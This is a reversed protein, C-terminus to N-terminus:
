PQAVFDVDFASDTLNVTRTSETFRYRKSNVTVAYTQGSDLSSFTFYGFANTLAHRPQALDGGTLVVRAGSIGRGTSTVVRGGLNADAATTGARAIVVIDDLAIAHNAGVEAFDTWRLMIEEGPPINVAFGGVVLVRNAALNGNLQGSGTNTPTTFVLAPVATYSGTTLDTVTVAQRYSFGLTQSATSQDRWQEGVYRVEISTITVGTDNRFRIGYNLEGTGIALPDVLGGFARDPDANLGYNKFSATTGSGDDAFFTNPVSNNFSRLAYVGALPATNDFHQFDVTTLVSFNQTYAGGPGTATISVQAAASYGFLCISLAFLSLKKSTIM